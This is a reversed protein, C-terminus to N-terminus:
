MKIVIDNAKTNKMDRIEWGKKEICYIINEKGFFTAAVYYM